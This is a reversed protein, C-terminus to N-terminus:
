TRIYYHQKYERENMHKIEIQLIVDDAEARELFGKLLQILPQEYPKDLRFAYDQKDTRLVAVKIKNALEAKCLVNQIQQNDVKESM